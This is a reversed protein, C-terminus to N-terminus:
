KIFTIDTLHLTDSDLEHYHLRAVDMGYQIYSMSLTKVQEERNIMFGNNSDNVSQFFHLLAERDNSEMGKVRQLLDHNRKESAYQDYLTASSWVHPQSTDKQMVHSQHADWVLHFLQQQQFVVLTHPEIDSLDMQQWASVPSETALLERVIMGRSKAYNSRRVHKEFAGNLLILLSGANNIGLWTGGGTQDLPFITQFSGTTYVTPPIAKIRQPSEDRLSIFVHQDSQPIFAVTCM